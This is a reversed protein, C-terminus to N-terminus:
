KLLKPKRKLTLLKKIDEIENENKVDFNLWRGDHYQYATDFMEKTKENIELSKVKENLSAGIVVVVNFGDEKLNIYCLSKGSKKYFITWGSKKSFKYVGDLQYSKEVYSTLKELLEFREGIIKRIEQKTPITTKDM